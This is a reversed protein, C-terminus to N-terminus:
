DLKLSFSVGCSCSKDVQPNHIICFGSRILEDEYDVTSGKILDLSVDDITVSAGDQKIIKDTEQIRDVLEFKYQFGSCGGSDVVIRMSAGKAEMEKLKQVSKETLFLLPKTSCKRIPFCLQSSIKWSVNRQPFNNWRM